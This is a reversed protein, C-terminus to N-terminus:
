MAFRSNSSFRNIGRFVSSTSLPSLTQSCCSALFWIHICHGDFRQLEPRQFLAALKMPGRRVQSFFYFMSALFQSEGFLSTIVQRYGGHKRAEDAKGGSVTNGAPERTVLLNKVSDDRLSFMGSRFLATCIAAFGNGLAMEGLVCAMM